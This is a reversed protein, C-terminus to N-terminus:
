HFENVKDKWNKPIFAVSEGLVYLHQIFTSRSQTNSKPLTGGDEYVDPGV